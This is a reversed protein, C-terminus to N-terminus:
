IDKKNKGVNLEKGVLYIYDAYLEHFCYILTSIIKIIANCNQREGVRIVHCSMYQKM